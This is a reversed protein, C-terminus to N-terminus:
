SFLVLKAQRNSLFAIYHVFDAFGTYRYVDNRRQLPVDRWEFVQSSDVAEGFQDLAKLGIENVSMGELRPHDAAKSPRKIAYRYYICRM